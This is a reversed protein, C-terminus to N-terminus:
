ARANRRSVASVLTVVVESTATIPYQSFQWVQRVTGARWDQQPPNQEAENGARQGM